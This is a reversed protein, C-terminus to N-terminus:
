LEVPGLAIGGKSAAELDADYMTYQRTHRMLQSTTVSTRQRLEDFNQQMVRHQEQVRVLTGKCGRVMTGIRAIEFKLTKFLKHILEIRECLKSFPEDDACHPLLKDITQECEGGLQFLRQEISELLGRERQHFIDARDCVDNITGSDVRINAREVAEKRLKQKRTAKKARTRPPKTIETIINAASQQKAPPSVVLLVASDHRPARRSSSAKTKKVSSTSLIFSSGDAVQKQVINNKRHKVM